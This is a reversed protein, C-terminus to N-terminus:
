LNVGLIGALVGAIFGLFLDLAINWGFSFSPMILLSLVVLIGMYLFGVLGGHLWGMTKVDKTIGVGSLLISVASIVVVVKPIISESLKTFYMILALILFLMITYLYANLVGKLIKGFKISNKDDSPSKM